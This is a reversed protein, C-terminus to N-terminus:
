KLYAYHEDLTRELEEDYGYIDNYFHVEGNASAVATGYVILVPVPKELNVRLTQTGNMAARIRDIDWGPNARLVWAALEEANEVRICGHSFDRRPQLFLERAPTSHMYVDHENPFVFKVLGLANNVGPKQRIRLQGSRLQDLVSESIDSLAVVQGSRSVIEYDHDSLYHRDRRIHPLLEARTISSPVDWYPRFIVYQLSGAFVPTRHQYAKGVVVNTVLASKYNADLAHLEFEPINVVIPPQSYRRPIWRLRELALQLQRVRQCLPVNLASITQQTIWGDNEIGHRHQFHKVAMVLSGQYIPQDFVTADSPMDGLKKLLRSLRPADAYLDGPKVPNRIAALPGEDYEKALRTYTQLAKQTRRYIEFPPDMEELVSEVDQSQAVRSLFEALDCRNQAVDFDFSLHRPNVRGLNLDSAYRLASVTLAVDFTVQDSETSVPQQFHALRDSWRPGDYDESRLGKSEAQQLNAILSIAQPSLGNGRVWQLAYGNLEYFKKVMPRYDTFNPWRLCELRGTDVISHLASEGQFSLKQQPIIPAPSSFLRAMTSSQNGVEACGTLVVFLAGVLWRGFHSMPQVRYADYRERSVIDTVCRVSGLSALQSVSEHGGDCVFLRILLLM